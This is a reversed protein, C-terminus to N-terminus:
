PTLCLGGHSPEKLCGDAHAFPRTLDAENFLDPLPEDSWIELMRRRVHRDLAQTVEDTLLDGIPVKIAAHRLWGGNGVAFHVTLYADTATLGQFSTQIKGTRTM